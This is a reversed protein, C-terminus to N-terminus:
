SQVGLSKKRADKHQTFVRQAGKDKVKEAANWAAGFNKKLEEASGSGDISAMFDVVAKEDMQGESGGGAGRGDNDMDRAALGTAAMLTYRQLYTVTSGVQQIANKKGSDDPAGSLTTREQHGLEHTIICTVTILKDKQETEWRHSFGHKSLNAVVGDVVAALTAHSFQAGGPINVAKQKLIVTPEAKFRAMAAVFAKKAETEDWREKVALLQELKAVDFSPDLAARDIIKMLSSSDTSVAPMPARAREDVVILNKEAVSTM